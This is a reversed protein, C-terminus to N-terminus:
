AQFCHMKCYKLNLTSVSTSEANPPDHLSTPTPFPPQLKLPPVFAVPVVDKPGERLQLESPIQVPVVDGSAGVMDTKTDMM